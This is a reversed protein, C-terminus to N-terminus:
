LRPPLALRQQDAGRLRESEARLVTAENRTRRADRRLRAQSFWSAVGGIVLGAVLSVFIIAFLPLEVSYAPTEGSFPDLSLRVPTRNAVSLLILLVAVPLGILWAFFRRM